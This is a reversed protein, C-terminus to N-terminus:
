LQTTDIAFVLGSIGHAIRLINYFIGYVRIVANNNFTIIPIVNLQITINDIKSFNAVGSPQHKEPYLAFSYTNIVNNTNNTHNQYQQIESFYESDRLSLRQQGNFLITERVVINTGILNDNNDRILSNTYNFLDNIRTNKAISLQTIWILEKCPQTFGVKFSQNIGTITKEGNYYVQEILYELKSRSFRVREDSDLYVYEVLLYADALSITNLVSNTTIINNYVVESSNLDPMAKYGSKLGSIFYQENTLVPNISSGSYLITRPTNTIGDFQVSQFGNDTLRLIYLEKNIIDFHIYKAFSTVGNVTQQLYEFEEFNVFDDDLKIIHTPALIYCSDLSNLEININIHSYQLNVIPLALGTIRNFWFQLPIYLLYGQKGNSFTTLESVDGILKDINKNSTLTLDHWINL